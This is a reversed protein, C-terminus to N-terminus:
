KRMEPDEAYHTREGGIYKPRTRSCVVHSDGITKQLLLVPVAVAKLQMGILVDGIDIGAHAQVHEVTVADELGYYAAMAFSGGGHLWPVACVPEYGYKEAAARELVVARNLHECCQAALYVGQEQLPPLVGALVAAAAEMSSDKGIRGGMIESSSCGVVFIDGARLHAAALLEEAAQRAQATIAACDPKQVTNQEM